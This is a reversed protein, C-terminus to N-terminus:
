NIRYGFHKLVRQCKETKLFEVFKNSEDPNNKRGNKLIVVGQEMAAYQESDVEMVNYQNGFKTVFSYSTFAADVAGTTLYQNVQSISEGYIFKDSYTDFLGKNKLYEKAAMGYPATKPDALAIRKINKSSLVEEISNFSHDKGFLFALRGHAYVFPPESM